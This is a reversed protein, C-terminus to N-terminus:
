IEETIWCEGQGEVARVFENLDQFILAPIFHRCLCKRGAQHSNLADDAAGKPDSGSFSGCIYNVVLEESGDATQRHHHRVM